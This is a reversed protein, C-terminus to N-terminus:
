QKAEEIINIMMTTLSSNLYIGMSQAIIEFLMFPLLCIFKIWLIITKTGYKILNIFRNM